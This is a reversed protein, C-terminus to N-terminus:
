IGPPPARREPFVAIGLCPLAVNMVVNSLDLVKRTCTYPHLLSGDLVSVPPTLLRGLGQWLQPIESEWLARDRAALGQPHQSLAANM